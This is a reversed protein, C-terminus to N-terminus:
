IIGREQKEYEYNIGFRQRKSKEVKFNKMQPREM